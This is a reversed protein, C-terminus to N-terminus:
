YLYDHFVLIYGLIFSAVFTTLYIGIGIKKITEEKIKM